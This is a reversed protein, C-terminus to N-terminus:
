SRGRPSSGSNPCESGLAQILRVGWSPVLAMFMKAKTVGVEVGEFPPNKKVIYVEM